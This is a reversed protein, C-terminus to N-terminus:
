ENEILKTRRGKDLEDPESDVKSIEIELLGQKKLFLLTEDRQEYFNGDGDQWYPNPEYFECEKDADKEGLYWSCPCKRYAKPNNCYCAHGECQDGFSCPNVQGYPYVVATGDKYVAIEVRAPKDAYSQYAGFAVRAVDLNREGKIPLYQLFEYGVGKENSTM